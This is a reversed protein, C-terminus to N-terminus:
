LRVAVLFVATALQFTDGGSFVLLVAGVVIAAVGGRLLRRLRPRNIEGVAEALDAPEPAVEIRIEV